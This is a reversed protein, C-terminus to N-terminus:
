GFWNGLRNTKQLHAYVEGATYLSGSVLLLEDKKISNFLAFRLEYENAIEKLPLVADFGYFDLGINKAKFDKYKTKLDFISGISIKTILEEWTM